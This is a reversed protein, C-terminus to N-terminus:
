ISIAISLLPPSVAAPIFPCFPPFLNRTYSYLSCPLSPSCCPSILSQSQQSFRPVQAPLSGEPNGALYMAFPPSTPLCPYINLAVPVAPPSSWPASPEGSALLHPSSPQKQAAVKLQERVRGLPTQTIDTVCLCSPVLTSCASLTVSILLRPVPSVPPFRSLPSQPPPHHNILLSAPRFPSPLTSCRLRRLACTQPAPEEVTCNSSLVTLLCSRTLLGFFQVSVPLVRGM